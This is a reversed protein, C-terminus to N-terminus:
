HIKRRKNKNEGQLSAYFARVKPHARIHEKKLNLVRLTRPARARSLAVYAQGYEFTGQMNCELYDITLGQSKHVTLAYALKLPLQMRSAVAVPERCGDREMTFEQKVRTIYFVGSEFQVFVGAADMDQVVGRSGNVLGAEYDLNKILIVQAGKKLSLEAPFSFNKEHAKRAHADEYTDFAKFVVLESDQIKNLETTNMVDVNVNKTFLVTPQIGFDNSLDNAGTAQLFKIDEETPDGTRLRNLLETFDRDSQRYIQTLVVSRDVLDRWVPHEFLFGKKPCPLQFFDGLLVLQIGGFPSPDRRVLKLVENLKVFYDPDAMSIEDVVLLDCETLRQRLNPIRRLFSAHKSADRTGLGISAWSHLTMGSINAAAIGTTATVHCRKDGSEERIKNILFTKGAGAPGTIFVNYGRKIFDLAEQQEANCM